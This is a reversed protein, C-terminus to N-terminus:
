FRGYEKAMEQETKIEVKVAETLGHKNILRVLRKGTGPETRPETEKMGEIRKLKMYLRQSIEQGRQEYKIM